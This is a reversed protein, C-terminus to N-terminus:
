APKELQRLAAAVGAGPPVDFRQAVLARELSSLATLVLQPTSSAGMLGLRWIRGALPGLGAGIEVNSAELLHRRVAPESVGQPVTVANLTWLREGAPPFLGLGMAELGAALARHHREHRAWRAELGEERVLTLAERLAYLFTSSATHHYGRKGAWYDHLLGIDLYFSRPTGARKMKALARPGFTIPALGPPSGICKQTGSYCADLEWRDVAVPHGGLSTVTDAIVLAGADHARQAIAEVPNLVGTSTEAHVVTVLAVKPKRLARSVTDPDLARGWPAEVRDVEAGYRRAMEALREGFYGNSCALVRDGAEVLNAIAAEMGSTGTGSIAITVDNTTQFVFRLLERIEDMIALLEPDLHGLVPKAMARMVRAAVMSPGPGLLLREENMM